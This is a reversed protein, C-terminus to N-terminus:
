CHIELQREKTPALWKELQERAYKSQPQRLRLEMMQVGRELDACMEAKTPVNRLERQSKEKPFPSQTQCKELARHVKLEEPTPPLTARITPVKTSTAVVSTQEWFIGYEAESATFTFSRDGIDFKAFINETSRHIEARDGSSTRGQWFDMPPADGCLNAGVFRYRKGDIDVLIVDSDVALRNVYRVDWTEVDQVKSARAMCVHMTQLASLQRESGPGFLIESQRPQTTQNAASCAAGGKPQVASPVPQAPEPLKPPTQDLEVLFTVDDAAIIDYVHVGGLTFSGGFEGDDTQTMTGSGEASQGSWSVGEVMRHGKEDVVLFPKMRSSKGDLRYSRGNVDLTISNSLLLSKDFQIIWINKLGPAKTWDNWVSVQRTNLGPPPSPPSPIAAFATVCFFTLGLLVFGMVLLERRVGEVCLLTRVGAISRLIVRM